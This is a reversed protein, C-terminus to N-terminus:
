LYVQQAAKALLATRGSGSEGCVVLPKQSSAGLALTAYSNITQLLSKRGKFFSTKALASHCQGLVEAVVEELVDAPVGRIEPLKRTSIDHDILRIMASEFTNGIEELYDKHFDANVGEENSWPVSFRFPIFCM